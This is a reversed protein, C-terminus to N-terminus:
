HRMEEGTLRPGLRAVRVVVNTKQALLAALEHQTVCVYTGIRKRSDRETCASGDSLFKADVECKEWLSATLGVMQRTQPHRISRGARPSTWSVRTVHALAAASNEAFHTPFLPTAAEYSPSATSLPSDLM